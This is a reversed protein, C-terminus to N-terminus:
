DLELKSRLIKLEFCRPGPCVHGSWFTEFDVIRVASNEQLLINRPSLDEHVIGAKHLEAVQHYIAERTTLDLDYDTLATGCYELVLVTTGTSDEYLGFCRPGIGPHQHLIKYADLEQRLKLGSPEDVATKLAVEITEGGLSEVLAHGGWVQSYRGVATQKNLFIGARPTLPLVACGISATGSQREPSQVPEIGLLTPRDEPVEKVSDQHEIAGFSVPAEDSDTAHTIGTYTSSSTSASIEDTGVSHIPVLHTFGTSCLGDGYFALDIGEFANLKWSASEDDQDCNKGAQQRETRKQQERYDGDQNHRNDRGDNDDRSGYSDEDAGGDGKKDADKQDNDHGESDSYENESDTDDRRRKQKPKETDSDDHRHKKQRGKAVTLFPDQWPEGGDASSRKVADEIAMIFLGTLNELYAKANSALLFMDSLVAVQEERHCQLVSSMVGSTLLEYTGNHTVLRSWMQIYTEWASSVFAEADDLLSQDTLGLSPCVDRISSKLKALLKIDKTAATPPVKIAETGEKAGINKSHKKKRKVGSCYVQDFMDIQEAVRQFAARSQEESPLAVNSPSDQPMPRNALFTAFHDHCFKYPECEDCDISCWPFLEGSRALVAIMAIMSLYVRPNGALVNKYEIALLPGLGRYKDPVLPESTGGPAVFQVIADVREAKRTSSVIDLIPVFRGEELYTSNCLMGSILTFLGDFLKAMAHVVDAENSLPFLFATLVARTIIFIFSRSPEEDRALFRVFTDNSRALGLIAEHFSALMGEDLGLKKIRMHAPLHRDYITPSRTGRSHTHEPSLAFGGKPIEAMKEFTSDIIEEAKLPSSGGSLSSM